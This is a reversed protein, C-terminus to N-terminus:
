AGDATDAAVEEGIQETNEAMREAENAEPNTSGTGASQGGCESGSVGAPCTSSSTATASAGPTKPTMFPVCTTTFTDPEEGGNCQAVNAPPGAPSTVVVGLPAAIAATFVGFTIMRCALVPLAGM